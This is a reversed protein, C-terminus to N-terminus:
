REVLQALRTYFIRSIVMKCQHNSSSEGPNSGLIVSEFDTTSVAVSHSCIFSFTCERTFLLSRTEELISILILPYIATISSGVVKSSGFKAVRYQKWVSCSKTTSLGLM